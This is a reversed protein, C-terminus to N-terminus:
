RSTRFTKRRASGILQECIFERPTWIGPIPVTAITSSSDIDKRATVCERFQQLTWEATPHETLNFHVLRRSGIELAVFVYVIRFSATVSVFFDCAVIGRAHNRLFTSWRQDKSGRPRPLRRVYKGVTRPSLRIQLKLFLEDAIREEGWTPNEVAM